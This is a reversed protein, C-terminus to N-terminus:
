ITMEQMTLLSNQITETTATCIGKALMSPRPDSLQYDLQVVCKGEVTIAQALLQLEVDINGVGKDSAEQEQFKCIFILEEVANDECEKYIWSKGAFYQRLLVMKIQALADSKRLKYPRPEPHLVAPSLRALCFVPVYNYVFVACSAALLLALVSQLSFFYTFQYTVVFTVLAAVVALTVTGIKSSDPLKM